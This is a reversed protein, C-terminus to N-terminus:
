AEANFPTSDQVRLNLWSIVGNNSAITFYTSGQLLVSAGNWICIESYVIVVIYTDGANTLATRNFWILRNSDDITFSFSTWLDYRNTRTM